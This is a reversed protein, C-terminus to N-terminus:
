LLIKIKVDIVRASYDDNSRLHDMDIGYIEVNNKDEFNKLLGLIERELDRREKKAEILSIKNKDM